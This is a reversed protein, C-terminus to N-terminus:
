SLNLNVGSQIRSANARDKRIVYRGYSKLNEIFKSFYLLVSLHMVIDINNILLIIWKQIALILSLNLALFYNERDRGKEKIKRALM